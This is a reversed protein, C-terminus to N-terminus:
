LFDGAYIKKIITELDDAANNDTLSANYVSKLNDLTGNYLITGKDIIIM